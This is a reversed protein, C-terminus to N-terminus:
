VVELDFAGVAFQTEGNLVIGVAAIQLPDRRMTMQRACATDHHAALPKFKRRTFGHPHEKGVPVRRVAHASQQAPLPDLRQLLPDRRTALLPHKKAELM